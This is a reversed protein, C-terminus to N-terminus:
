VTIGEITYKDKYNQYLDSYEDHIINEYDTVYRHSSFEENLKDEIVDIAISECHEAIHEIADLLDNLEYGRELECVGAKLRVVHNKKMQKNIGRIRRRLLFVRRIEDANGELYNTVTLEIIEAAASAITAIESKAQESFSRNTSHMHKAVGAMVLAYDSIREFDAIVQLMKTVKQSELEDLTTTTLKVLYNGLKEEYKNLRQELDEVRDYMKQDFSDEQLDIAINVAEKAKKAMNSMVQSCQEVAVMPNDLFREELLDFDATREKEEETEPVIMYVVKKILGIMPLQAAMLIAREGTNLAAINFPNMVVQTTEIGMAGTIIYFGIIGLLANALASFLYVFATRKGNRSASMGALLVPTSAGIGIGLLIPFATALSIAGTTSLAQLVGVTASVSQLIAAFATGFLIGLVPNTLSSMASTFVPNTRLPSVASSMASMGTMLIAFGLMISGLHKLTDKKAFMQFLIGIIAVVATITASSLFKAIGGGSDIYSLCIIWGTVTTGIQAGLIVGIAQAVKMMASNVFGVVMVTAASSSQIVGTVVVGLLFGKLPSNTLKYLVLELKNGAVKKLGDGMASMGYLFLAVGCLLNLIMLITDSM